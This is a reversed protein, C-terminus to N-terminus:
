TPPEMSVRSTIELVKFGILLEITNVIVLFITVVTLCLLSVMAFPYLINRSVCSSSRQKDLESREVELEKLRNYLKANETSEKQKDYSIKDYNKQHGAGMQLELLCKEHKNESSTLKVFYLDDLNGCLKPPPVTSMEDIGKSTSLDLIM